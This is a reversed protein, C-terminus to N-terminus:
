GEDNKGDLRRLHEMFRYFACLEISIVPPDCSVDSHQGTLYRHLARVSPFWAKMTGGDHWDQCAELLASYDDPDLKHWWKRDAPRPPEGKLEDMLSRRKKAM